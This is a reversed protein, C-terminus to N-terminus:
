LNLVTNRLIWFSLIITTIVYIAKKGFLQKRLKLQITNPHNLSDFILGVLIYPLTLVLIINERIASIINFNLLHHVARQSGCGPCEYGTLAKIPCKPYYVNENPDFTRYLVTLILISVFVILIKIIRKTDM